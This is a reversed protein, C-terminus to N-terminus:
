GLLDRSRGRRIADAGFRNRIADLTAALRDRKPGPEPAATEFLDMQVGGDTASWGSIGLGILRVPRGSWPEAAFLSWATHFLAADDATPVKLTRSRTHTEFPHFRIKLTVARGLHQTQRAIAGVEQAAWRLTEELIQPDSVDEPFTTERSISQRPRDPDIRDDALGRAQQYVQSGTRAGLHHRLTELSLQRVDGIMKVGLRELRPATKVGIGRLVTFPMPALFDGVQEPPVITLGNPKQAESALKAILRNPGIGVSATLGVAAWIRAKVQAGIVAPPGILATLRSVDLYAEDISVREVVPSVTELVGMIQQSVKAYRAMSPRVYVTEPPLRPVAQVIPMASHVGFRRAEYSCTAVVGRQGPEAGVVLPRGHWEPHDRQEVAAYFADLDVHLILRSM